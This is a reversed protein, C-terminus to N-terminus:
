ASASGSAGGSSPTRQRQRLTIIEAIRVCTFFLIGTLSAILITAWLKEPGTSYYQNYNLLARGLGDRVGGPGEGVIAGVIAAAAAVKLATFLYPLSAPLRVKRYIDWRSAAMSRMLELSRPDPSRLGRTQAVTVPFFTLYVAIVVVASTGRGAAVVIIPALAVIPIAQSAIVYPMLARESLASHVFISALAVGIFAGIAFGIVAKTWTSFAAAVLDVFLSTEANRRDPETLAYAIDWIHPLLRDNAQPLEFPPVHFYDFGTGLVNEFRWPDGFLWKFAEWMLGVILFFAVFALVTRALRGLPSGWRGVVAEAGGRSTKAIADATGEVDLTEEIAEAHELDDPSAYASTNPGLARYPMPVRRELEAQQRNDTEQRDEPPRGEASQEREDSM